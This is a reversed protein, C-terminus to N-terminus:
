KLLHFTCHGLSHNIELPIDRHASWSKQSTDIDAIWNPFSRDARSVYDSNMGPVTGRIIPTLGIERFYNAVSKEGLRINTWIWWNEDQDQRDPRTEDVPDEKSSMLIARPQLHIEPVLAVLPHSNFPKRWNQTGIQCSCRFLTRQWMMLSPRGMWDYCKTAITRESEFYLCLSSPFKLIKDYSISLSHELTISTQLNSPLLPFNSVDVIFM